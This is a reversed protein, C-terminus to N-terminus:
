GQWDDWNSRLLCCEGAPLTFRWANGDCEIRIDPASLYDAELQIDRAFTLAVTHAGEPLRQDGEKWTRMVGDGNYLALCAM